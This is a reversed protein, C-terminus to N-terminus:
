NKNFRSTSHKYSRNEWDQWESSGLPSFLHSRLLMYPCHRVQTHSQPRQLKSHFTGTECLLCGTDATVTSYACAAECMPSHPAQCSIFLAPCASVSFGKNWMWQESSVHWIGKCWRPSASNGEVEKKQRLTYDPWYIVETYYLDLKYMLYNSEEEKIRPAKHM